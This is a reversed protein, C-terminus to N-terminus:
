APQPREHDEHAKGQPSTGLNYGLQMMMCLEILGSPAGWDEHVSMSTACMAPRTHSPSHVVIISSMEHEDCRALLNAVLPEIETDYINEKSPTQFQVM